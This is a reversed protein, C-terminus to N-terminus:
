ERLTDLYDAWDQLMIRREEMYDAHNYAARIRNSDKHGLQAEIADSRYGKSNLFTSATGRFGHPTVIENGIGMHRLGSRISAKNITHSKKINSPFLYKGKGTYEHLEKLFRIVQRSLPVRHADQIQNAIKFRQALKRHKAPITWIAFEFDIESWEAMSLEGPRLMVLVLIKLAYKISNTGQYVDIKNIVTGLIEPDNISALHKTLTAPLILQLNIDKAPNRRAKGHIVAYDFVQQIFGKVRKAADVAGRNSVKTIIPILEPAEITSMDRQGLLPYVDRRLYSETRIYNSNSWHPKRDALWTEAIAQFTDADIGRKKIQKKQSPDINYHLDKKAQDLLQRAQSLSVHPYKGMTYTKQKNNYRYNYRWVKIGSSLIDCYLGGGDVLKYKKDKSKANKVTFDTLKNRTYKAM